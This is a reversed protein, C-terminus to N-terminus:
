EDKKREVLFLGEEFEQVIAAVISRKGLKIEGWVLAERKHWPVHWLIEQRIDWVVLHPQSELVVKLDDESLACVQPWIQNEADYDVIRIM